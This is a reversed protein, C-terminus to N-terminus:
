SSQFASLNAKAAAPLLHAVDGLDLRPGVAAGGLGQGVSLIDGAADVLSGALDYYVAGEAADNVAESGARLNPPSSRTQAFTSLSM